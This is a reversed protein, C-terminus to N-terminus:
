RIFLAIPLGYLIALVLGLAVAGVWRVGITVKAAVSLLGVMWVIGALQYANAFLAGDGQLWGLAESPELVRAAVLIAIVLEVAMTTLAFPVTTALSVRAFLVANREDRQKAKALLGLMGALVLTAVIFLPGQYWVQVRYQDQATIPLV